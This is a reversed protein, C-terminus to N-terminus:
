IEEKIAIVKIMKMMETERMRINIRIILKNSPHHITLKIPLYNNNNNNSSNHHSSNSNSGLLHQECFNTKTQPVILEWNDKM